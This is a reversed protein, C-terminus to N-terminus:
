FYKFNDKLGSNNSQKIEKAILIIKNNPTIVKRYKTKIAKTSAVGLDNINYNQLKM